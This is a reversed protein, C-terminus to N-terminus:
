CFRRERHAAGFRAAETPIAPRVRDRPVFGYGGRLARRGYRCVSGGALAAAGLM